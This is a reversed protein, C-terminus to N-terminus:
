GAQSTFTAIESAVIDALSLRSKELALPGTELAAVDLVSTIM